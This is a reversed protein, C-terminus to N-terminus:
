AIMAGKRIPLKHVLHLLYGRDKTVPEATSFFNEQHCVISWKKDDTVEGDDIAAISRNKNFRFDAFRVQGPDIFCARKGTGKDLILVTGM